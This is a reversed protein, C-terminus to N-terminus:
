RRDARSRWARRGAVASGAAFMLVASAGLGWWWLRRGTGGAGLSRVTGSSGRPYVRLLGWLGAERYPERHDGYLYYGPLREDGGAIISATLTEMGGLHRASVIASGSLGPDTAWAHGEISFV